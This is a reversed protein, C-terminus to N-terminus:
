NWGRGVLALESLSVKDGDGAPVSQLGTSLFAMEERGLKLGRSVLAAEPDAQLRAAFEQDTSMNYVVQALSM